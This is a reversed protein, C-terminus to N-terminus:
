LQAEIPLLGALWAQFKRGASAEPESDYTKGGDTWALKGDTLSVQWAREGSAQRDFLAMFQQALVDSKVLV